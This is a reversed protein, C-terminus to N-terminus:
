EGVRRAPRAPKQKEQPPETRLAAYLASKSVGAAAAAERVSLGAVMFRRAKALAQPTVSPRRGLRAGRDRAADLGAKTRERILEREFDALLAFLNFMFRGGPQETNMGPDNLSLFSVGRDKLTEVTHVLHALSRGLRDIKWVVLTDGARLYDMADQLGPRATRAGSAVDQFIRRCGARKLADFQLGMDQDQTSVRAYGILEGPRAPLDLENTRADEPDRM